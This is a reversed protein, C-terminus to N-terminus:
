PCDRSAFRQAARDGVHQHQATIVLHDLAGDVIGAGFKGLAAEGPQDVAGLAVVVERGADAQARRDRPMEIQFQDRLGRVYHPLPEFGGIRRLSGVYRSRDLLRRVARTRCFGGDSLLGRNRMCQDLREVVVAPEILKLDRRKGIGALEVFGVGRECRKGAHRNKDGLVHHDFGAGLAHHDEGLDCAHRPRRYPRDEVHTIFEGARDSRGASRCPFRRAAAARSRGAPAANGDCAAACNM